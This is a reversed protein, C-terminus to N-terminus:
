DKIVFGLSALFAPLQSKKLPNIGGKGYFKVNQMEAGSLNADRLDAGSLNADSLNAYRLDACYLNAGSLTAGSLAAGSLNADSLDAGSLNADRLNADSLNADRLNADSELREEVAEKYTNKTSQFIIKGTWRNKISLSVVKEEKKHEAEEIFKKVEDLNELVQQKTIKM